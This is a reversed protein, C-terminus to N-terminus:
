PAHPALHTALFDAARGWAALQNERRVIGHGENDFILLDVPRGLGRLTDTIQQAEGVPVRPDNKGHIVLLPARIEGAHRIPSIAELFERDHELSGYEAERLARRWVGTHELFSVFNAIGVIDVAAGWLEPYTSAASLVMFGGYSGGVIGIRGAEGKRQRVLDRVLDRLDRVSDMRKRVDDLHTYTRGYGTSGRVNPLIVRWGESVLYLVAPSFGPRAQAEPGGHVNVITGKPVAQRPVYEWYPVSLGDEARFKALRPPAIPAPVREPAGTLRREKGTEVSRRYIDVGEVSSVDYILASGDPLWSVQSIVGRPGSNVLRDERTTPDFLHTESWGDRNVVLALLNGTPAPRVLELDGPFEQIFEHQGGRGTDSWRRSSAARTRRPM